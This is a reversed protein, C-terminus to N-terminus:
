MKKSLFVTAALFSLCFAAMVCLLTSVVAPSIPTMVFLAAAACFFTFFGAFQVALATIQREREDTEKM